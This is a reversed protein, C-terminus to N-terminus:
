LISYRLTNVSVGEVTSFMGKYGANIIGSILFDTCKRKRLRVCLRGRDSVACGWVGGFDREKEGELVRESQVCM